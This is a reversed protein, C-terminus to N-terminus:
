DKKLSLRGLMEGAATGIIEMAANNYHGSASPNIYAANMSLETCFRTLIVFDPDAEPAKEQARMIAEDCAKKNEYTEINTHWQSTCFFYGVKIIGFKEVGFDSKLMDKYRILNQLYEDEPTRIVADSEGQLWVYYIHDVSGRSMAKRIGARIKKAANHYRYTGRHWEVLTTDGRCAHIAVVERGTAKVYARCFSPVLSGSSKSSRLLDRAGGIDEGVPLQLPILADGEMRYEMADEVPENVSPMEGTQGQM